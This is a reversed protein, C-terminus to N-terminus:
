RAAAPPTSSRASPRMSLGRGTDLWHLGIPQDPWGPQGAHSQEDRVFWLVLWPVFMPEFEPTAFLDEPVNTEM